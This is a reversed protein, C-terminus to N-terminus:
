FHKSRGSMTALPGIQPRKIESRFVEGFVQSKAWEPHNGAEMDRLISNFTLTALVSNLQRLGFWFSLSWSVMALGLPMQSWALALGRTQTLAFGVAAGDVALLYFTYKVYLDRYAAALVLNAEDLVDELNKESM